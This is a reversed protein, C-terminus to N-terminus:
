YIFFYLKVKPCNDQNNEVEDNDIDEDCYDGLGDKDIDGQLINRFLKM